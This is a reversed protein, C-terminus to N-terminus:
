RVRKKLEVQWDRFWATNKTTLRSAGKVAEFRRTWEVVQNKRLTALYARWLRKAAGGAVWSSFTRSTEANPPGDVSRFGRATWLSLLIKQFIRADIDHNRDLRRTPSPMRASECLMKWNKMNFPPVDRVPAIHRVFGSCTWRDIGHQVALRM